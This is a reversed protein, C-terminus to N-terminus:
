ATLAALARPGDPIGRNGREPDIGGQACSAFIAAEIEDVSADPKAQWLLAALGAVHPTAMSTGDMEQYGGRPKASIVGVGPAVLDPVIPDRDRQFLQSSSFRAVHGQSDVAGVSLAEVYNGPSRSTGPMDNGVAFVPLVNRNRMIRTLGLFDGVYGPFGLSASLVRVGHGVAWDMGALVRAVVNGGEIVLASALGAEPAVGVSRGRVPRGAITAATHTGHVDSDYPDRAPAEFGMMDFEAFHEIAGRKFCPHKGDVGTDLHGVLVGQGTLGQNWLAPIRLKRIGWTNRTTLKAAAIREPKIHLLLPAGSVAAVGDDRRLAAVGARDTVGLMIGLNPFYRVPAPERGATGPGANFGAAALASDTSRESTHFHARLSLVSTSAVRAGSGVAAQFPTLRQAAASVAHRAKGSPKLEVIVQAIGTAQLDTSIQDAM